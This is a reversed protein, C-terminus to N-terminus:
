TPAAGDLRKLLADVGPSETAVVDVALPKREDDEHARRLECKGDGFLNRLVPAIEAEVAKFAEASNPTALRDLFQLAVLETAFRIDSAGDEEIAKLAILAKRLTDRLVESLPVDGIRKRTTLLGARGGVLDIGYDVEHGILVIGPGDPVHAYDAVDVLLGEVNGRQIIRQFLGIFPGLDVAARPDPSAFFKASIRKPTM